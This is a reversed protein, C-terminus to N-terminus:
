KRDRQDGKWRWDEHESSLAQCPPIPLRLGWQVECLPAVSHECAPGSTLPPCDCRGLDHNCNGRAECGPACPKAGGAAPVTARPSRAMADPRGASKAAPAMSPPPTSKSPILTPPAPAVPKAVVTGAKLQAIARRARVPAPRTGASVVAPAEAHSQDATFLEPNLARLQGTSRFLQILAVLVLLAALLKGAGSPSM